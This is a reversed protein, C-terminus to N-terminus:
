IILIGYTAGWEGGGRVEVRGIKKILHGRIYQTHVSDVL